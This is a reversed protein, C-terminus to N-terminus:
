MHTGFTCTDLRALDLPAIDEVPHVTGDSSADPDDAFESGSLTSALAQLIGSLSGVRRFWPPPKDACLPPYKATDPGQVPM